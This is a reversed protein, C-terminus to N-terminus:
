DARPKSRAGGWEGCGGAGAEANASTGQGAERSPAIYRLLSESLSLIRGAVPEVRISGLSQCVPEAQDIFDTWSQVWEQDTFLSSSAQKAYDIYGRLAILSSSAANWFTPSSSNSRSILAAILLAAKACTYIEQNTIGKTSTLTTFKTKVISLAARLNAQSWETSLCEFQIDKSEKLAFSQGAKTRSIDPGCRGRSPAASRRGDSLYRVSDEALNSLLTECREEKGLSFLKMRKQVGDVCRGANSAWSGCGSIQGATAVTLTAQFIESLCQAITQASSSTKQNVLSSVAQCVVFIRERRQALGFFQADLIDVDFVYGLDEFNDLVCHFDAGGNSSILGPVNEFIMWEPKLHRAIEIFRFFLGSRQGALGARKGAVSLDQCPTGGIFVDVHPFDANPVQTIDGFNTLRGHQPIRNVSKIAAIRQNREAIAKLVPESDSEGFPIVVADPDPMYKPRGAGHRYALLECCFPEIEAVFACKWGLPAFAVSAAEIGSCVSGFRIDTRM